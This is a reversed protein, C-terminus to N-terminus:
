VGWNFNLTDVKSFFSKYNQVLDISTKKMELNQWDQMYGVDQTHSSLNSKLEWNRKAPHMFLHIYLPLSHHLSFLDFVRDFGGM